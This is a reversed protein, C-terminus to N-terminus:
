GCIAFSNTNIRCFTRTHSEYASCTRYWIANNLVIVKCKPRFIFSIVVYEYYPGSENDSIKLWLVSIFFYKSVKRIEPSIVAFHNLCRVTSSGISSPYEGACVNSFFFFFFEIDDEIM